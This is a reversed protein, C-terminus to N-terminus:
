NPKETDNTPPRGTPNLVRRSNEDCELSLHSYQSAALLLNPSFSQSLQASHKLQSSGCM